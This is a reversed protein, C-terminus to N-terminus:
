WIRDHVKKLNKFKKKTFKPPPADRPLMHGYFSHYGDSWDVDKRFENRPIYVTDEKLMFYAFNKSLAVPYPVDNNGVSSYYANIEEPADFEYIGDGIFVYRNSAKLKLLITNGDFKPGHGGSYKTSKNLPSKGIFIKDTNNYRKVLITYSSKKEYLEDIEEFTLKPQKYIEVNNKNINVLFPRGGNDHTLYSKGRNSRQSSEKVKKWRKVGSKTKIIEWIGGDNGRKKHGVKFKTASQQPAKRGGFQNWSKRILEKVDELSIGQLNQKQFEFREEIIKGSNISSHKFVGRKKRAFVDYMDKGKKVILLFNDKLDSNPYIGTLIALKSIVTNNKDFKDMTDMMEDIDIGKLNELKGDKTEVIINYRFQQLQRLQRTKTQPPISLDSLKVFKLPLQIPTTM